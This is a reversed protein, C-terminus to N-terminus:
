KKQWIYIWNAFMSAGKALPSQEISFAMSMLTIAAMTQLRIQKEFDALLVAILTLFLKRCMVVAEWWWYQPKYGALLFASSQPVVNRRVMKAEHELLWPFFSWKSCSAIKSKSHAPLLSHKVFIMFAYPLGIVLCGSRM